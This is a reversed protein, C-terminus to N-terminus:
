IRRRCFPREVDVAVYGRGNCSGCRGVPNRPWQFPIWNSWDFLNIVKGTGSCARCTRYVIM